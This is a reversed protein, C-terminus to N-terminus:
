WVMGLNMRPAATIQRVGVGVVGSLWFRGRMWAVDPGVVAWSTTTSDLALEAHIEAGLRLEETVRVNAGAGPRLEKHLRGINVDVVLGADLEVQWPGDDYSAALESELRVQTKITVDRSLAFRALPRLASSRPLFRYRLEAGYRTFAFGPAVDDATRSELEVPIALELCETLGIAPTWLLAASREHFPGLDDHEYIATGVELGGQRVTDTEPLWGYLTRGAYAPSALLLLALTARRM